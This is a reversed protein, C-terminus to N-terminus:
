DKTSIFYVAKFKTDQDSYKTMFRNSGRTAPTVPGLLDTSVLQLREMIKTKGLENCIPQEIGNNIKYVNCATLSGTFNVGTEAINRAAQM